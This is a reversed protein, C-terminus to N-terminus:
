LEEVMIFEEATDFNHNVKEMDDIHGWVKTNKKLPYMNGVPKGGDYIVLGYVENDKIRTIKLYCYTYELNWRFRCIDGVKLKM